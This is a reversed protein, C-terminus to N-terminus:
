RILGSRLFHGYESNNQDANERMKGVKWAAITNVNRISYIKYDQTIQLLASTNKM